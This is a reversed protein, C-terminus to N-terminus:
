LGEDEPVTSLIALWTSLCLPHQPLSPFILLPPTFRHLSVHNDKQRKNPTLSMSNLSGTESLLIDCARACVCVCPYFHTCRETRM